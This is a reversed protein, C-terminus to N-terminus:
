EAHDHPSGRARRSQRAARVRRADRCRRRSAAGDVDACRARKDIRVTRGIVRPDAGFHREYVAFSLVAVRTQGPRADGPLVTRGLAAGVGLTTFFNDSTRAGTVKLPELGDAVLAMMWGRSVAGIAQFSRTKERWYTLDENNVFGNPWLAVLAEPDRFPLPRLLVGRVVSFVAGNAGAALALLLVATLAFGPRRRLNRVALTLAPLRM